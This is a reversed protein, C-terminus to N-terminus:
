EMLAIVTDRDRKSDMYELAENFCGGILDEVNDNFHKRSQRQDVIFSVLSQFDSTTNESIFAKGQIYLQMVNLHKSLTAFLEAAMMRRESLTGNAMKYVDCLETAPVLPGHKIIYEAVAISGRKSPLSQPDSYDIKKKLSDLNEELTGVVNSRRCDLFLGREKTQLCNKSRSANKQYLEGRRKYFSRGVHLPLVFRSTCSDETSSEEYTPSERLTSDDAHSEAYTPPESPPSDEESIETYTPQKSPPSDEENIEACTPPESPPSDEENIELYTPPESPPSDEENIEAYTAPQESPPSDKESKAYTPPESPPSDEENIEAYTPRTNLPSNATSSETHRLQESPRSNGASSEAHTKRKRSPSDDASNKVQTHCRTPPSDAVYSEM